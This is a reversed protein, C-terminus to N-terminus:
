RDRMKLGEDKDKEEEEETTSPTSQKYTSRMTLLIIGLGLVGLAIFLIYENGSLATYSLIVLIVGTGIFLFVAITYILNFRPREMLSPKREVEEEAKKSNIKKSSM